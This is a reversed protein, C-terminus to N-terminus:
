RWCLICRVIRIKFYFLLIETFYVTCCLQMTMDCHGIPRVRNLSLIVYNTIRRLLVDDDCFLHIFMIVINGIVQHFFAHFDYYRFDKSINMIKNRWSKNVNNSRDFIKLCCYRCIISNYYYNIYIINYYAYVYRSRM